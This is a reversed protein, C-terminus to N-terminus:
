INSENKKAKRKIVYARLDNINLPDKGESHLISHCNSCVVKVDSVSTEREGNSIPNLHHVEICKKGYKGYISDNLDAECVYCIYGYKDIANPRLNPDRKRRRREIYIQKAGELYTKEPDVSTKKKKPKEKGESELLLTGDNKLLYKSFVDSNVIGEIIELRMKM